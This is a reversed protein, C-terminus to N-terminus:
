GWLRLSVGGFYRQGPLPYGGRDEYRKNTLNEVGIYLELQRIEYALRLDWLFVDILKTSSNNNGEYRSSRYRFTNDIRAHAIPRLTTLYNVTHRPSLRLPVLDTFGPPTGLNELYTYNLSHSFQDSLEQDIEIEMGQRRAKGVNVSTSALASTTQILDTINARFYSVRVSSSSTHVELGSDYTWAKEPRLNPNGQYSFGGGFNTFPTYLDDITPARFSRAASGSYRLWSTIDAMLLVRPNKSEGAVSHHDLRGSPILTFRDVKFTKQIFFGYNETSSIYNLRTDTANRSDLRDRVFNGGVLFDWPLEFQGEGGKSQEVRDTDVAFSPIDFRVRRRSGFMRLTALANAPLPVMYSTRVYASDTIQRADRTPAQKEIRNDFRNPPIAPFIQGPMGANAHFSGVDFLFKGAKGMSVGVNGGVNYTRADSNDRFGGERQNNAFFFYDLRKWRSGFDLRYSQNGYSRKEFGVHSIPSGSHMSRKSIVNIVGGIANPGYLASAGGRVVEIHEIQEVPIESLDQSASLGVGSLPRGDLLVLTQNSTAGRIGALRFTGLRGQQDVNVSTMRRLADGATQPNYAKFREPYATQTNTPLERQSLATRTLTVFLGSEPSTVARPMPSEKTEGTFAVGTSRMVAPPVAGPSEDAMTAPPLPDAAALPVLFGLALLLVSSKRIEM